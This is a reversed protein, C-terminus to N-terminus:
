VRWTSTKKHQRRQGLFEAFRQIGVAVSNKSNITNNKNGDVGDEIGDYLQAAVYHAIINIQLLDPIVPIEPDTTGSPDYEVVPPDGHLLLMVDTAVDPVFQYWIVNGVVCVAEIDGSDTMPFYSDYLDDLTDYIKIKGPEGVRSIRGTFQESVGDIVAFAQGPVTTFKGIKRLSPVTIGPYSCAYKIAENIRVTIDLLKDPDDDFFSNDNVLLGIETFMRSLKM